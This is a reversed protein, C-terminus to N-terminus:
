RIPSGKNDFEIKEMISNRVDFPMYVYKEVFPMSRSLFTGAMIALPNFFIEM